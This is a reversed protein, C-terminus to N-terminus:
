CQPHLTANQSSRVLRAHTSSGKNSAQWGDSHYMTLFWEQQATQANGFLAGFKALYHALFDAFYIALECWRKRPLFFLISCLM